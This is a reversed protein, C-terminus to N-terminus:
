LGVARLVPLLLADVIPSFFDHVPQWFFYFIAIGVVAEVILMFLDPREQPAQNNNM